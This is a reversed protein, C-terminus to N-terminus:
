FRPPRMSPSPADMVLDYTLDEDMTREVEDALDQVVEQAAPGFEARCAETVGFERWVAGRRSAAAMRDFEEAVFVSEVDLRADEGAGADVPVDLRLVVGLRGHLCVTRYVFGLEPRVLSGRVARASLRQASRRLHDLHQRDVQPLSVAGWGLMLRGLAQELCDRGYFGPGLESMLWSEGLWLSLSERLPERIAEPLPKREGGRAGKKQEM